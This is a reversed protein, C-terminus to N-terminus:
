GIPPLLTPAVDSRPPAASSPQGPVPSATPNPAIAPRPAQPARATQYAPSAPRLQALAARAPEMTPDIALAAGLYREAEAHRGREVLLVGLNYNVVAPPYVAGLHSAAADMRNMEVQVKALNNRYLPKAPALQVARLLAQEAEPLKGQRALCLGLDNFPTPNKPHAKAARDYLMAAVDLRGDRDEMRAAGLLADLNEPEMAVAKQYLARGQTVNGSRCSMEAMAAYLQASPPGGYGLSIPDVERRQAAEAKAAAAANQQLELASPAGVFPEMLRQTWSAQQAGNPSTAGLQMPTPGGPNPANNGACGAALSATAVIACWTTRM